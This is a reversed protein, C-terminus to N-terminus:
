HWSVELGGLYNTPHNGVWVLVAESDLNRPRQSQTSQKKKMKNRLQKVDLQGSSFVNNLHFRSSM